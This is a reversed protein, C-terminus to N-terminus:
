PHFKAQFRKKFEDDAGLSFMDCLVLSYLEM